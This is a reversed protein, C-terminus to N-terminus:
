RSNKRAQSFEYATTYFNRAIDQVHAYAAKDNMTKCNIEAAKDVLDDERLARLILAALTKEDEYPVIFGSVGDVIWEDACATCTQIPFAGVAMAELMSTSIGDSISLGVYCRATSQLKLIEEHSISNHTTIIDFDIGTESATVEAAIETDPTASFVIIKMGLAKIEDAILSIAKLATLARGFTMQYGKIMITKRASPKVADRYPKLRDLHLGGANPIVPLPRARLGLNGAITYDRACEASYFDALELIDRIPQVHKKIRSFLYVDSGWNTAIWVPFDKGMIKRAQLVTYGAHQFELSHVIDPKVRKITRILWRARWDGGIMRDMFMMFLTNVINVPFFVAMSRPFFGCLRVLPGTLRRWKCLSQKIGLSTSPFFIIEKDADGDFQELWRASHISNPMAVVLIRM